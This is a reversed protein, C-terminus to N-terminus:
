MVESDSLLWTKWKKVSEVAVQPTSSSVEHGGDSSIKKESQDVDAIPADPLHLDTDLTLTKDESAVDQEEM